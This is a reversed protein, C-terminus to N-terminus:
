AYTFVCLLKTVKIFYVYTYCYDINQNLEIYM